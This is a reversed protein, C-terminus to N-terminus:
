DGYDFETGDAIMAIHERWARRAIGAALTEQMTRFAEAAKGDLAPRIFPYAASHSTGFETLHARRSVPKKFGIFVVRESDKTARGKVATISRRLKGSKVRVLRKAEVVVPKAAARLAQDGLRIAVKPGLDRLAAELEKAGRLEFKTGAVQSQNLFSTGFSNVFIPSAM